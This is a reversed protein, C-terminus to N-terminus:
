VNKVIVVLIPSLAKKRGILLCDIRIIQTPTNIEKLTTIEIGINIEITENTVLASIEKEFPGNFSLYERGRKEISLKFTITEKNTIKSIDVTCTFNSEYNKNAVAKFEYPNLAPNQLESLQLNSKNDELKIVRKIIIKSM